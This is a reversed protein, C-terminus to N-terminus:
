PYPLNAYIGSTYLREFAMPSRVPRHGPPLQSTAKSAFHAAPSSVRARLAM